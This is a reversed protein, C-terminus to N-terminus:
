AAKYKFIFDRCRKTRGKANIVILSSDINLEASAHKVSDFEKIFANNLDYQRIPKWLKKVQKGIKAKAMKQKMEDSMKKGKWYLSAVGEKLQPEVFRKYREEPTLDFKKGKNWAGMVGKTGKNWAVQAGKKDKNWTTFGKKFQGKNPNAKHFESLKKKQEASYVYGRVGDGGDTLNLGNNNPYRNCNSKFNKVWYAERVNCLFLDGEFEEIIDVTHNEWGYKKISNYLAPQNKCQLSKYTILRRKFNITQGIYLKMSPSTIRYIICRKIEDKAFM